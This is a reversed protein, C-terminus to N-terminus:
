CRWRQPGRFEVGSASPALYFALYPMFAGIADEVPSADPDLNVMVMGARVGARFRRAHSLSQTVIGASLGFRTANAVELADPRFQIM